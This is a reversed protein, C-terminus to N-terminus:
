LNNMYFIKMSKKDQHLIMLNYFIKQKRLECQEGILIILKKNLLSMWQLKELYVNIKQYLLQQFM